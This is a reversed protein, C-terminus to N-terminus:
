SRVHNVQSSEPCLPFAMFSIFFIGVTQSCVPMQGSEGALSIIGVFVCGCASNLLTFNPSSEPKLASWDVATWILGYVEGMVDPACYAAATWLGVAGCGGIKKCTFGCLLGPTFFFFLISSSLFSLPFDPQFSFM